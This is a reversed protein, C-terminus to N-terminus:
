EEVINVKYGLIDNIQQITLDKVPSIKQQFKEKTYEVGDIWYEVWIVNGNDYCVVAPGDTKHLKGEHFWFTSGVKYEIAPGDKRSLLGNQYWRITGNEDVIVNYEEM